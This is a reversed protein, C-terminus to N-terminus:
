PQVETSDSTLAESDSEGDFETLKIRYTEPELKFLIESPRFKSEFIKFLGLDKDLNENFASNQNFFEESIPPLSRDQCYVRYLFGVITDAAQAVLLAQIGEMAPRPIASGHSAFGCQNRLECIGLVATHLGSLTKDLSKRAETESSATIPLFSLTQTAMNFLKPLDDNKEYPVSHKHLVTKCVTEILTRSLDFALGPNEVVAREIVGVQTEIQGLGAAMADRAGHMVFHTNPSEAMM